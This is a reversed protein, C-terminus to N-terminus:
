HEVINLKRLHKKIDVGFTTLKLPCTFYNIGKVKGELEINKSGNRAKVKQSKLLDLNEFNGHQQFSPIKKNPAFKEPM